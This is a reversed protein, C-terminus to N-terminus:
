ANRCQCKESGTLQKLSLHFEEAQWRVPVVDIVMERNLHTALQNTVMWEISGDAAVQKFFKLGFPGQQVRVEM